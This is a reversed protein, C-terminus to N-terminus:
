KFAANEPAALRGGRGGVVAVAVAAGGGTVAAAGATTGEAAGDAGTGTGATRM